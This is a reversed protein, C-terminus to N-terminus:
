ILRSRYLNSGGGGQDGCRRLVLGPRDDSSLSPKQQAVSLVPKVSELTDFPSTRKPDLLESQPFARNHRSSVNTCVCLTQTRSRYLVFLFSTLQVAPSPAADEPWNTANTRLILDRGSGSGLSTPSARGRPAMRGINSGGYSPEFEESWGGFSASGYRTPWEGRLHDGCVFTPRPRQPGRSSGVERGLLFRRPIQRFWIKCGAVAFTSELCFEPRLYRLDALPEYSFSNRDRLNRALTPNNKTLKHHTRSESV